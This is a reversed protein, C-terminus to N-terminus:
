LPGIHTVKEILNIIYKLIYPVDFRSLKQIRLNNVCYMVVKLDVTSLSPQYLWYTIMTINDALLQVTSVILM